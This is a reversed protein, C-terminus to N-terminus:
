EINDSISGMLQDSVTSAEMTYGHLYMYVM